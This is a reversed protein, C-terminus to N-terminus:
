RFVIEELSDGGDEVKIGWVISLSNLELAHDALLTDLLGDFVSGTEFAPAFLV